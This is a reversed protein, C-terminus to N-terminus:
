DVADPQRYSVRHEMSGAPNAPAWRAFERDLGHERDSSGGLSRGGAVGQRAPRAPWCSGRAAGAVAQAAAGTGGLCWAGQAILVVPVLKPSPM